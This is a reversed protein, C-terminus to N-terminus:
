CLLFIRPELCSWDHGNDLCHFVQCSQAERDSLSLDSQGPKRALKSLSITTTGNFIGNDNRFDRPPTRLPRIVTSVHVFADPTTTRKSGNVSEVMPSARLGDERTRWRGDNPHQSTM